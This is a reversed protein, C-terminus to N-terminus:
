QVSTAWRLDVLSQVINPRRRRNNQTQIDLDRFTADGACQLMDVFVQVYQDHLMKDSKLDTMCCRTQSWIPWAVDQRVETTWDLQEQQNEAGSLLLFITHCKSYELQHCSLMRNQFHVICLDTWLSFRFTQSLCSQSLTGDTQIYYNFNDILGDSQKDMQSLQISHGLLTAM